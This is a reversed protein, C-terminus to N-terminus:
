LSFGRRAKPLGTPLIPTPVALSRGGPLSYSGAHVAWSGSTGDEIGSAKFVTYSGGGNIVIEEKATFTILNATQTIKVKALFRISKDLAQM